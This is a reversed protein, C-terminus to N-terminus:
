MTQASPTQHLHHTMLALNRRDHSCRTQGLRVACLHPFYVRPRMLGRFEAPVNLCPRVTSHRLTATHMVHRSFAMTTWTQRHDYKPREHGCAKRRCRSVSSKDNMMWMMFWRYSVHALSFHCHINTQTRSALEPRSTVRGVWGSKSYNV